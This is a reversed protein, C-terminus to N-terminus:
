LIRLYRPTRFKDTEISLAYRMIKTILNNSEKHSISHLQLIALVIQMSQIRSILRNESKSIDTGRQITKIEVIQNGLSNEYNRCKNIINEAYEILQKITLTKLESHHQLNQIKYGAKIKDDIFRKIANFSIKGHRSASGEIEGDVNVNSNTNSSDFNIKRDKIDVDKDNRHKWISTTSIKSGIGKMDSGIHFSKIFFDPLNKDVESNTIVKFNESIKKLSVGVLLKEDFLNNMLITLSNIDICEDIQKNISDRNLRSVLYIDAPCYKSINIDNWGGQKSLQKYKADIHSYPSNSGIYSAHYIEYLENMDLYRDKWIKNPIKCFTNVWNPDNLFHSLLEENVEVKEPTFVIRQPANIYLNFFEKMNRATLTKEPLAQKIGFFLCQISEFSRVMVGAGSSGFDKTKKLQNLKFEEGDEDMFVPIYRTNKKFYSKAKELDYEDDTTIDNVVIEPEVWNAGSKMKDVTVKQNNNTTLEERNKIKNILVDGRKQGGVLKGLEDLNLETEEFFKDFKLIKM